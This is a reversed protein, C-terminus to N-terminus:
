PQQSTQAPGRPITACGAQGPRATAVPPAKIYSNAVDWGTERLLKADEALSGAPPITLFTDAGYTSIPKGEESNLGIPEQNNSVARVGKRLINRLMIVGRDTYGLNELAHVAIPRQSVQAEYDGPQRQREEYPRNEGALQIRTALGPSQTYTDEQDERVRVFSFELTSTDDSPVRWRIIRPLTLSHEKSLPFEPPPPLQAINPNIHETMRVWVTNGIRRTNIDVMGLPTEMFDLEGVDEIETLLRGKESELQAGSVRAHLFAAHVPDMVNDQVQLWNCPKFNMTGVELRYGPVEYTGLIPFPPKKDPPGMYTFVLGKYESVPYAGHRLREKFTSDLPEGPTELVTGDIDFLWGHYCCRLGVDEIKGYELSTGRHSCHLELLGVSGRKDRFVVLDEGLVRVVRPLEKLDESHAVPQWFRRFYEGCPTGPGVHTLEMDETPVASHLYAAYTTTLPGPRTTTM